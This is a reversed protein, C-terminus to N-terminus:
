HEVMKLQLYLIKYVFLTMFELRMHCCKLLPPHINPKTIIGTEIGTPFSISHLGEINKFVTKDFIMFAKQREIIILFFHHRQVCMEVSTQSRVQCHFTGTKLDHSTFMVKSQQHEYIIPESHKQRESLGNKVLM